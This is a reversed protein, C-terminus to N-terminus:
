RPPEPTASRPEGIYNCKLCRYTNVGDIAGRDHSSGCTPCAFTPGAGDLIRQKVRDYNEAASAVEPDTKALADLERELGRWAATDGDPAELTVGMTDALSAAAFAAGSVFEHPDRVLASSAKAAFNEADIAVSRVAAVWAAREERRGEQKAAELEEAPSDLAGQARRMSGSGFLFRMREREERRGAEHATAAAARLATCEDRASDLLDILEQIDGRVFMIDRLKCEHGCEDCRMPDLLETADYGDAKEAHEIGEAGCKPCCWNDSYVDHNALVRIRVESHRMEYADGM